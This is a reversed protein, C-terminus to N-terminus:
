LCRTYTLRTRIVLALDTYYDRMSSSSRQGGGTEISKWRNHLDIVPDPVQQDRARATSGRRLSRYISYQERVDVTADILDPRNEQVFELQDHFADDLERTIIVEGDMACFAPGTTRREARLFECWKMIWERVQIGSETTAVSVVLHYRDGDENKFQGLMPIVVHADIGDREEAGYRLHSQLGHADVMLIENGRLACVFGVVLTTGLLVSKRVSVYNGEELLINAALRRLIQILIRYDLGFNTKQQKGMRLLLGRNFLHYWKSETPANSAFYSDGKLTKFSFVHESRKMIASTDHVHVLATRFKRISDYQLHDDANRGPRRSQELMGVALRCGVNDALPWPGIDPLKVTLGLRKWAAVLQIVGRKVGSITSESRSWIGDLNVQRLYALIRDDMMSHSRPDRGELNRFWCLECQFPFILFAGDIGQKFKREELKRRKWTM